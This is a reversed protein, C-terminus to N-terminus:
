WTVDSPLGPKLAAGSVSVRAEYVLKARQDPTDVNNPTFEASASLYTVTGEYTADAATVTVKKGVSVEGLRPEPVYVRVFLDTTDTITLLTRGPAAAQGANAIVATVTGVQPALITAYSAQLEALTVAAEAQKQRAQAAALDADTGDNKAQAVAAQAAAVGQKAQEIQLTLARADLQVLPQDKAVVDGEHVKIETIPATVLSSVQYTRAEVVGGLAQTTASPRTATWIGWGALGVVVLAVLAIVPKPPHKAM